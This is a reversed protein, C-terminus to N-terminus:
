IHDIQIIDTSNMKYISKTYLKLNPRFTTTFSEQINIESQLMRHFNSVIKNNFITKITQKTDMKVNYKLVNDAVKFMNQSFIIYEEHQSIYPWYDTKTLIINTNYLIQLCMKNFEDTSELLCSTEKFMFKLLFILMQSLVKMNCYKDFYKYKMNLKTLDEPSSPRVFNNCSMFQKMQVGLEYSIVFLLELSAFKNYKYFEDDLIVQEKFHDPGIFIDIAYWDIIDFDVIFKRISINVIDHNIDRTHEDVKGNIDLLKNQLYYIIAIKHANTLKDKPFIKLRKLAKRTYSNEPGKVRPTIVGKVQKIKILKKRLVLELKNFECPKVMDYFMPKETSNKCVLINANTTTYKNKLKFFNNLKIKSKCHKAGFIESDSALKTNSISNM